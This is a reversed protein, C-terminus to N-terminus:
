AYSLLSPLYPSPLVRIRRPPTVPVKAAPSVTVNVEVSADVTATAVTSLTLPSISTTSPFNSSKIPKSVVGCLIEFPM